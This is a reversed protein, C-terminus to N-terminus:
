NWYKRGMGAMHKRVNDYGQANTLKANSILNWRTRMSEKRSETQRKRDTESESEESSFSRSVCMM